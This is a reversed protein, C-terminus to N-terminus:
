RSRNEFNYSNSRAISHRNDSRALLTLALSSRGKITSPTRRNSAKALISRFGSIKIKTSFSSGLRARSRPRSSSRVSGLGNDNPRCYQGGAYGARGRQLPAPRRRVIASLIKTLLMTAANRGSGITLHWCSWCLGVNGPAAAPSISGIVGVMDSLNESQPRRSHGCNACLPREHALNSGRLKSDIALNFMTVDRARGEIQFTTRVSWANKPRLPPKTGTLKRKNWPLRKHPPRPLM